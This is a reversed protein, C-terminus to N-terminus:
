EQNNKVPKGQGDFGDRYGLRLCKWARGLFRAFYYIPRM